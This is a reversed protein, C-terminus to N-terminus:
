SALRLTTKYDRAFQILTDLIDKGEQSLGIDTAMETQITTILEEPSPNVHAKIAQAIKIFLANDGHKFLVAHTIVPLRDTPEINMLCSCLQRQLPIAHKLTQYLNLLLSINKNNINIEENCSIGHQVYWSLIKSITPIHRQYIALHLTSIFGKNIRPEVGQTLLLDVLHYHQQRIALDLLNVGQHIQGFNAGYEALLSVLPLAGNEIVTLLCSLEDPSNIRTSAGYQLLLQAMKFNNQLCAIYLPSMLSCPSNAPRSLANPDAGGELLQQALLLNHSWIARHLLTVGYQDKEHVVDRHQILLKLMESNEHRLACMAATHNAYFPAFVAGFFDLARPSKDDPHILEPVAPKRLLSDVQANKELLYDVVALHRKLLAIIVPSMGTSSSANVNAGHAILLKVKDLDGFNSAIYLPTVNEISHFLSESPEKLRIKKTLPQNVDAGYAILIRAVRASAYHLASFGLGDITNVDVGRALLQEINRQANAIVALHLPSLHDTPYDDLETTMIQQAANKEDIFQNCLQELEKSDFVLDKNQKPIIIGLPIHTGKSENKYVTSLIFDSLSDINTFPSITKLHNANYYIWENSSLQHYIAFVQRGTSILIPANAPLKQLVETFRHKPLVQYSEFESRAITDQDHPAGLNCHLSQMTELMDIFEDMLPEAPIEVSLLCHREQPSIHLSSVLQQIQDRFPLKKLGPFQALLEKYKEDAQLWEQTEKLRVVQELLYEDEKWDHISDLLSYFKNWEKTAAFKCFLLGLGLSYGPILTNTLKIRGRNICYINIKEEILWEKKPQTM